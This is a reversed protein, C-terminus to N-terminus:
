LLVDNQYERISEEITEWTDVPNGQVAIKNMEPTPFTFMIGFRSFYIGLSEINGYMNNERMNLIHYGVLQRFYERKFKLEKTTKVDILRGDIIFDADAGGIDLSSQGFIPNLLCQKTATWQSHDTLKTLRELDVTDAENVSFVESNPFDRGRRSVAEMKALIICDPLLDFLTLQGGFFSSRKEKFNSIFEKRKRNGKIGHEAVLPFNSVLSVNIRAVQLMIAYNFAAGVTTYNKTVPEAKLEGKINFAPKDFLVDILESDWRVWGTLSM